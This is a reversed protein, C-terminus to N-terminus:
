LEPLTLKGNPLVMPYDPLTEGKEIRNLKGRSLARKIPSLREFFLIGNLHDFEHQIVRAMFGEAELTHEGMDIDSYRIQVGYPRTVKEFFEPISLCGEQDEDEDDSFFEIVPNILAIPETNAYEEIDTVDMIFISRSSGVQNAALGVGNNTNYMTEFMDDVFQSLEENFEKVPEAKKKLAPHFCNYIPLVAM